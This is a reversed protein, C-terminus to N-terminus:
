VWREPALSGTLPCHHVAMVESPKYQGGLGNSFKVRVPYLAATGPAISEVAVWLCSKGNVDEALAAVVPDESVVFYSEPNVLVLDGVDIYRDVKGKYTAFDDPGFDCLRKGPEDGSVVM